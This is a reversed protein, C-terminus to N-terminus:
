GLKGQALKIEADSKRIYYPVLASADATEGRKIQEIGLAGVASARPAHLFFPAFRARHGVIEEITERYAVAGDGVFLCIEQIGALWEEPHVACDSSVKKLTEPTGCRYLATYVEGKRADLLPCVLGPFWPFPHALADLTSIGTVPKGTAFAFGKVASIGIRLGTFSGPGITVAFADLAELGLGALGLTADIVTMLRKAHTESSSVQLEAVMTDDDLLAVSGARTSTDIALIKM